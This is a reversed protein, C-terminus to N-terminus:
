QDSTEHGVEWSRKNEKLVNNLSTFAYKGTKLFTELNRQFPTEAKEQSGIAGLHNAIVRLNRLIAGFVLVCESFKKMEADPLPSLNRLHARALVALYTASAMGRAAAREALLQRDDAYLRVYLRDTRPADQVGQPTLAPPLAVPEIAREILRKLLASETLGHRRALAKLRARDAAPLRVTLRQDARAAPM